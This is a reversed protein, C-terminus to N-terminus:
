PQVGRENLSHTSNGSIVTATEETLDANSTETITAIASGATARISATAIVQGPQGTFNSVANNVNVGDYATAGGGAVDATVTRTVSSHTVRLHACAPSVHGTVLCWGHRYTM